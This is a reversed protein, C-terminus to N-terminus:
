ATSNWNRFLVSNNSAIQSYYDTYGARASGNIRKPEEFFQVALFDFDM